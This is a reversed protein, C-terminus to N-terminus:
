APLNKRQHGVLHRHIKLFRRLANALAIQVGRTGDHAMLANTSQANKAALV